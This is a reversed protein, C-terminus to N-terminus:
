GGPENPLLYTNINPNEYVFSRLLLITIPDQWAIQRHMINSFLRSSWKGGKNYNCKLGSYVWDPWVLKWSFCVHHLMPAEARWLALIFGIKLKRLRLNQQWREANFYCTNKRKGIILILVNIALNFASKITM